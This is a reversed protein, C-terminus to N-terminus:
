YVAQDAKAADESSAEDGIPVVRLDKLARDALDRKTYLTAM